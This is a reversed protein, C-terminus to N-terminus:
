LNVSYLFPLPPSPLPSFPFPFVQKSGARLHHRATTMDKFIRRMDRCWGQLFCSDRIQLIEADRWGRFFFTMEMDKNLGDRFPEQRGKWGGDRQPFRRAVWGDKGGEWRGM